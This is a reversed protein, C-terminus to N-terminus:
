RTGRPEFLLYHRVLWDSAVDEPRLADIAHPITGGIAGIAAGTAGGLSGGLAGGVAGSVFTLFGRLRDRGAPSARFEEFLAARSDAVSEAMLQKASESDMRVDRDALRLRDLGTSISRRWQELSDSSRRIAVIDSVSLDDLRPVELRSLEEFRTHDM